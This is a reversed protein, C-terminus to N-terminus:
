RKKLSTGAIGEFKTEELETNIKMKKETLDMIKRDNKSKM